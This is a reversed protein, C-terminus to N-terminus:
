STVSVSDSPLPYIMVRKANMVPMAHESKNAHLLLVCGPTSLWVWQSAVHSFSALQPPANDHM